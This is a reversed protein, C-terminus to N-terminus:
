AEMREVLWVYCPDCIDNDQWLKRMALNKINGEDSERDWDEGIEACLEAYKNILNRETAKLDLTKGEPYDGEWLIMNDWEDSQFYITPM